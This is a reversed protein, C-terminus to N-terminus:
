ALFRRHRLAEVNDRRLSEPIRDLVWPLTTRANYAVIFILIRPTPTSSRRTPVLHSADHFHTDPPFIAQHLFLAVEAGRRNQVRSEQGGEQKHFSRTMGGVASRRRPGYGGRLSAFFPGMRGNGEMAKGNGGRRRRGQSTGVSAPPITATPPRRVIAELPPGVKQARRAPPRGAPFGEIASDGFFSTPRPRHASIRPWAVASSTRDPRACQQILRVWRWIARRCPADARNGRRCCARVAPLPM